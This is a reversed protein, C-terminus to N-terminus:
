KISGPGSLNHRHDRLIEVLDSYDGFKRLYNLAISAVQMMELRHDDRGKGLMAAAAEGCEEVLYPLWDLPESENELIADYQRMLVVAPAISYFEAVAADYAAIHASDIEAVDLSFLFIGIDSKSLDIPERM